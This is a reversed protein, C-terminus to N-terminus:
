ILDHLVLHMKVAASGDSYYDEVIEVREFHLREYLRIAEKNEVKVELLMEDVSHSMRAILERM